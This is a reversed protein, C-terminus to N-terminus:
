YDPNTHCSIVSIMDICMLIMELIDCRKRKKMDFSNDFKLNPLVDACIHNWYPKTQLQNYCLKKYKILLMIERIDGCMNKKISPMSAM